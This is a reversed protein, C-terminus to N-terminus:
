KNKRFWSLRKGKEKTKEDPPVETIQIENVPVKSMEVTMVRDLIVGCFSRITSSAVDQGHSGKAHVQYQTVLNNIDGSDFEM